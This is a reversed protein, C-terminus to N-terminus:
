ARRRNYEAQGVAGFRLLAGVYRATAANVIGNEGTPGLGMAGAVRDLTARGEPHTAVVNVALRARQDGAIGRRLLEAATADEAHWQQHVRRLALVARQFLARARAATRDPVEITLSVPGDVLDVTATYRTRSGYAPTTQVQMM